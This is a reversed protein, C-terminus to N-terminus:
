ASNESKVYDAYNGAVSDKLQEVIFSKSELGTTTPKPEVPDKCATFIILGAMLLYFFSTKKM